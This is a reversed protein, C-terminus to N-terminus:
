KDGKAPDAAKAGALIELKRFATPADPHAATFTDAERQGVEEARPGLSRILNGARVGELKAVWALIAVAEPETPMRARLEAVEADRGALASAFTRQSGSLIDRLVAIDANRRSLAARVEDYDQLRAVAGADAALAAYEADDILGEDHLAGRQHRVLDRLRTIEADRPDVVSADAGGGSAIPHSSPSKPASPTFGVVASIAEEANVRVADREDLM